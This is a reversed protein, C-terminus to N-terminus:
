GNSLRFLRFHGGEGNEVISLRFFNANKPRGIFGEVDM